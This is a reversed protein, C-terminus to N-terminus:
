LEDLQEHLIKLNLKLVNTSVLAWMPYISYIFLGTPNQPPAAKINEQHTRLTPQPSPCTSTPPACVASCKKRVLTNQKIQFSKQNQM